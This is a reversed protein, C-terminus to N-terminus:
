KKDGQSKIYQELVDLPAGGTSILCFSQLWFKEKWLKQRIHPFQKKLEVIQMVTSRQQENRFTLTDNQLSLFSYILHTLKQLPYRKIKEANGTYYAIVKYPHQSSYANLQMLLLIALAIKKM